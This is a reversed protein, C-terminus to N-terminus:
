KKVNKPKMKIDNQLLKIRDDKMHKWALEFEELERLWIQYSTTNELAKLLEYAKMLAKEADEIASAKVRDIRLRLLYEYSDVIDPEAINTMPPLDYKKMIDVIESDSKRRLDITDNLVGRLFRAKADAEKADHKLSEIEKLRREEYKALREVYFEEMINGVCEYRKIKFGTTFAVMNSNRWTSTLKFRKEFERVNDKADDYYDPDLYLDFRIDIHNYLDEYNKLVPRKLEKDPNNCLEELFEKYDTTWSGVPLETITVMKKADNFIYLGKTIWIGNEVMQVLGKFGFWYPRLALNELSSRKGKLRDKILMAVDEPDHPPIDTSFGTGIGESGNIILMPIVPYYNEPEVVLGDDNIHKLICSDEKRYIKDVISELHTYIYRPSASDKGGSLRSGFQGVPALININNAGVFTQALNVIAGQLSAEGHHYAAHESVYGALQAVKVESRLGRKFCGFLIKRQSPKLGDMINPLSRINDANSFHILEDHIFNSYNVKGSIPTLIRKPDYTNLWVKRDDSRKKNFALSFNEDTQDDVEYKVERRDVFWEQAEEATSTGLGKYYKMHWGKVDTQGQKWAEFEQISYFSITKNKKSVKILPTALSCIFGNTLLQPWEAHFLNMVLGKIHSGDLDQDAMIMIRGYRLTKVDNYKKKQELGLIKKIATLEENKSFINQSIDRVNLMKGKLPFVGWMERGVVKLGAIASSAASDGETLILTCDSSKSTGANLADVLKPMGRITKKKTGDTKKADKNAKADLINQAEDLLGIKVLSDAFKSTPKFHSGFKSAPTTLTEKTQSDFSPNVITANVFLLVSDKLQSPKVEIKKKKAVECFDGMINKFVTEVHKGGKKTNIGNVFSIQKEDPLTAESDFLNRTLIMAVEWRESSREYAIYKEDTIFLKVFKEFTNIKVEVNNFSVKVDKGAMAAIELVRTQFVSFMDETLKFGDFAGIFRTIDPCFTVSVYGKSSSTKKINPKECKSMNNTWTQTYVKGSTPSLTEVIFETSFINALKAGYGNKGGVIKEEGKDYNGSTLLHGFILEPAYVGTEKHIEIPIGDGDNKVSITYVKNIIECSVEIHKINGSRVMADRANVLVEDFIKYLGPNFNVNKFEMKHTENNCIWRTDEITEVSGIYTDPLELIHERHTHKKYVSAM